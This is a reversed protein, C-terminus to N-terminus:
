RSPAATSERITLAPVPGRRSPLPDASGIRELLFTAAQEGLAFTDRTLCTISPHVLGTVVSDDFSAVSLAHPVAVGMEQAVRLGAIAMVDNDYVIASPRDARSLLTRTAATAAAPSFDTVLTEGVVARGALAELVDARIRTHQFEAPGSVYAIERHGLAALYDFLAHAAAEDDLWIAPPDGSADRSGIVVAPLGLAPLLQLRPDDDRPDIVIVGDVQHASRWRRYTAMEEEISSVVVLQLAIGHLALASQVGAILDTFFAETGLTRAPRNVAFGVVGARSGVLARAASSPQWQHQEAIELIRQRTQESVGPRGNLAFSVAGPSVGALRAIDAITIRKAQSM